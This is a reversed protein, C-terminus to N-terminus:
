KNRDKKFGNSIKNKLLEQAVLTIVAPLLGGKGGFLFRILPYLLFFPSATLILLGGLPLNNYLFIIGLAFSFFSTWYFISSKIRIHKTGNSLVIEETLFNEIAQVPDNSTENLKTSKTSYRKCAEWGLGWEEDEENLNHEEILEGEISSLLYANWGSKYQNKNNELVTHNRIPKSRTTNQSEWGHSWSIKLELASDEFPNSSLPICNANALRGEQFSAQLKSKEIM